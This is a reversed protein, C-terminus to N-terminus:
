VNDGISYINIRKVEKLLFTVVVIWLFCIIITLWSLSIVDLKFHSWNVAIIILGSGMAKFLRYGLMDIWAKVQYTNVADIPIYLQEKSARNISYSLGRDMIKMVSVTILNTHLMFGISGCLLFLPQIYMGTLVGIYRHILPTLSFNVALSVLGMLSFFNSIFRTRENLELFNESVIKIFQFEIVPQALQSLCVVVAILQLYRTKIIANLGNGDLRICKEDPLERYFGLKWIIANLTILVILLLACTILLDETNLSTYKILMSATIGGLIGGLIGGSGIFWYAKRGDKVTNVTNSLSWFQEVLVVSFIDVFIYFLIAITINAENLASRFWLLLTVFLGLTIFIIKIRSFHAVMLNNIGVLMLLIFASGIWVYPFSDAGGFEILISRSAAKVQYYALIVLFFNLFLLFVRSVLLKRYNGITIDNLAYTHM